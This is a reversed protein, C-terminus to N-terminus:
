PLLVLKGIHEGQVMYDHAAAVDALAFTRDVVAQIRGSAILPWVEAEVTRALATKEEASRARLTSGTLILKKMMVPLFSVKEEYGQLFGIWVIRGRHAAAEINRQIYSGGVMDLIMDAGRGQTAAMVEAVFDQTRYNIALDAGLEVCTACKEDSGATVIVTAGFCKAMQIAMTGIGSAGGHLLLTEGPQLRGSDFLNTWVTFATEPISSAQAMSLGTPIPLCHDAAAVCYDAYGGGGILACLRDGVRWRDVGEGLAVVEGAVELGLTDPAGPPPPYMGERQYIDGRNVGAAEIRILVEGAKPEPLSLQEIALVETGGPGHAVVARMHSPLPM